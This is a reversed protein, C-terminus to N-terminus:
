RCELTAEGTDSQALSFRATMGSRVGTVTARSTKLTCTGKAAIAIALPVHGEIRLAAGGARPEWKTVRGNASELFPASPPANTAFLVARAGPVLHVWRGQPADRVGAIGSSRSLDPWGWAAGVRVTALAGGDAIEWGGDDVRRATSMKQFALVKAAYESLYLPTTEQAAAWDYVRKLGVLAATKAASYFHYYITITSLRRPKDNLEYTEIAHQYGYFPGHWDNTYVNENEVPAFVQYTGGREKPIGMPSGRTLSPLDATRTAGGGNVNFLGLSETLAVAERSPSCNGSWLLVKVQKGPPALRTNIYDVSGKIDRALDFTYNPIALHPLPPGRKKAEADEWEFPHSFTHSALEVHSLKFIERAIAELKPSDKPYMGQPGVEGEVVSITHPLQYKRLVEDLLVEATFPAGRREARSVFADGDVHITLIRRGSETTVDPAPIAPLALADQLFRFPDLVWRRNQELGEEIMFPQFVAGGWPALVVGDWTAGAADEVRLQSTVDARTARVPPLERAHARAPAEFGVYSSTQVIRVPAKASPKAAALGLRGLFAPDANWGFGELFAVRLGRDMQKLLWQRYGPVDDVGEPVFSVIGAYQGALNEAPLGGRVDVYDVVFGLHELVPAVLVSADQVGLYGEHGHKYLLMVKRPVIELRGVGIEDLSPTSVYPDFGAQLIKVATQRRLEIQSSPVYDIVTIPLAWRTRADNLAALLWASDKAPVESYTGASATRFLSEAVLGDISAGVAPLLDFGRNLLIKADPHRRKLTAVIDAIGRVHAAIDAADKAVRRHSDLTDLFFGRFGKNWLPEVVRDLLFDRWATSRTDVIDSNWAANRGLVLAAPVDKRWARAAGVEGVSVYAIPQARTSKLASVNAFHDGEVVVRDFHALLEPPVRAAYFFATPVHPPPAAHAHPAVLCAFMVLLSAFLTFHSGRFAGRRRFSRARRAERQTGRDRPGLAEASSSAEAALRAAARLKPAPVSPSRAPRPAAESSRVQSEPPRGM